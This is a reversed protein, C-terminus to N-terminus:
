HLRRRVSTVRALRPSPDNSIVLVRNSLRVAPQSCVSRQDLGLSTDSAADHLRDTQKNDNCRRSTDLATRM